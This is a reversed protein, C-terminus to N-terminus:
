KIVRAAHDERVPVTLLSPHMPLNREFAKRTATAIRERQPTLPQPPPPL